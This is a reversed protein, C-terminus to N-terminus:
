RGEWEAEWAQISLLESQFAEKVSKEVDFIESTGSILQDAELYHDPGRPCYVRYGFDEVQKKWLEPRQQQVLLLRAITEWDLTGIEELTLPEASSVLEAYASLLWQSV